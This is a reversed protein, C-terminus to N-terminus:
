LLNDNLNDLIKKYKKYKDIALYEPYQRQFREVEFIFGKLENYLKNFFDKNDNIDRFSFYCLEDKSLENVKKEIKKIIDLTKKDEEKMSKEYRYVDDWYEDSYMKVFANGRKVENYRMTAFKYDKLSKCLEDVGCSYDDFIKEIKYIRTKQENLNKPKDIIDSTFTNHDMYYVEGDIMCKRHDIIEYERKLEGVIIDHPKPIEVNNLGIIERPIEKGWSFLIKVESSINFNYESAIIMPDVNLFNFIESEFKKLFNERDFMFDKKLQNNKNALQELLGDKILNFDDGLKEEHYKELLLSIKELYEIKNVCQNLTNNIMDNNKDMESKLSNINESNNQIQKHMNRLSQMLMSITIKVQTLKEPFYIQSDLDNNGNAIHYNLDYLEMPIVIYLKDFKQNKSKKVIKRIEYKELFGESTAEIIRELDVLEIPLIMFNMKNCLDKLDSVNCIPSNIKADDKIDFINGVNVPFMNTIKGYERIKREVNNYLEDKIKYYMDPNTDKFGEINKLLEIEKLFFETGNYFDVNRNKTKLIENMKYGTKCERNNNKEKTKFKFMEAM